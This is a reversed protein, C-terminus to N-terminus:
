EPFAISQTMAGCEVMDRLFIDPIEEESLSNHRKDVVILLTLLFSHRSDYEIEVRPPAGRWKERDVEQWSCRKLTTGPEDIVQLAVTTM